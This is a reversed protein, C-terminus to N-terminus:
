FLVYILAVGYGVIGLAAIASLRSRTTIAVLAAVIIIAVIALEHARVDLPLRLPPLPGRALFAFGVLGVMVVVITLLYRRLRGSQLTAGLLDAAARVGVLAVDYGREPGIHRGVDMLRAVRAVWGLRWFAVIGLALTLGSLLLMPTIGHWLALELDSPTGTISTVARSVLGTAFAAPVLGSLVGLGGLLLPGSLMSIGPDHPARPSVARPGFFPRIGAVIAVAVFVVNPVLVALTLIVPAVADADLTAEYVLEKGIFGFFPLMGAMSFAALVAAATTLPMAAGLGSLRSVDRMGTEHDIIGAVLFLTGKYLAHGLLFVVAANVAYETGLGLLFTMIGLASVTSYALLRKLDTQHLALIGGLVMTIAGAGGVLWLWLDTGAFIPSIRALLYVGAKVMTASHLYASVPTPAEMANPLWYQFPFQASKTLAGAILLVAMPAFLPDAAIRDSRQVLVSLEYSGGAQALMLIGALLALEGAFTTILAQLAARRATPSHTDFGILLYSTIGTLAWAAYLLLVNDALVIGLMAAMFSFLFLYFRGLRRDGAFYGAAYVVVLAGIGSILLAFLMGLGDLQFSASLGLGPVWDVSERIPGGDVVRPTQVVLWAAIAAPVLALIWGAIRPARAVLLPAVAGAALAAVITAMLSMQM